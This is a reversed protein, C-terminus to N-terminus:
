GRPWLQSWRKKGRAFYAWVISGPWMGEEPWGTPLGARYLQRRRRQWRGLRGLYAWHAKFIAGITAWDRSLAQRAAWIGDLLLRSFVRRFVQGAPVNSHLMILSNRVNLFTKRPNGQPLTGGGVHYVTSQPEVGIAYGFNQARWCFDIEEMHAFFSPEFLGVREVVSRRLMMCAGTAWFVPQATDYQGQDSELTDFIRGRCFPYAYRDIFGGAAGAYEFHGPQDYAKVKPQVAAAQPHAEMWDVLPQLWDPEVEVDSNLLVVYPDQWSAVARTYGGAFGHNAEFALVEVQPYNKRLFDLSDDTSANDVVQIRCPAYTTHLVSPLFKELFSRGNWNLISITVPPAQSM